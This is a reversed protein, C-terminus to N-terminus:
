KLYMIINSIMNPLCDLSRGFGEVTKEERQDPVSLGRVLSVLQIDFAYVHHALWSGKLQRFKLDMTVGAHDHTDSAASFHFNANLDLQERENAM